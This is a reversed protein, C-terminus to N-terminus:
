SPSQTSHARGMSKAINPPFGPRSTATLHEPPHYRCVANTQDSRLFSAKKQSRSASTGDCGIQQITSFVPATSCQMLHVQFELLPPGGHFDFVHHM